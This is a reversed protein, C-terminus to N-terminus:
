SAAAIASRASRYRCKVIWGACCGCSTSRPCWRRSGAATSRDGAAARESEWSWCINKPSGSARGYADKPAPLDTETYARGDTEEGNVKISSLFVFRTVGAAVCADALRQTGRTNTELYADANSASDHMVHVRAALHVVADVDALADRWETRSSIDGVVARESAGDPVASDPARLAARVVHGSQALLPCLERGVFGGAGTVLVRM